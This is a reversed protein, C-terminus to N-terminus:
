HESTSAQRGAHRLGFLDRKVDGLAEKFERYQEVDRKKARESFEWAFALGFGVLVGLAVGLMLMMLRGRANPTEPPNPQDIVTIVPTNRVQDIRAQEYAQAMSSVLEQKMIVRRQLRDHEFQLNPSNGFQRNEDLFAKLSDETTLLEAQLQGLREESFDREASAQSQRSGLDFETILKLLRRGISASVEPDSTRINLTVVSTALSFGTSIAANLADRTMAHRIEPVQNQILFHEALDIIRPGNDTPVEVGSLVVQDLVNRSELLDQYFQPSRDSSGSRPISFGFQQALSSAGSLSGQDGQQAVFSATATYDFEATLAASLALLTGV